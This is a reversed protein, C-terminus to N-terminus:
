FELPENERPFLQFIGHARCKQVRYDDLGFLLISSIRSDPRDKMVDFVGAELRKPSTAEVVHSDREDQFYIVATVRRAREFASLTAKSRTLVSESRANLVSKSRALVSKSRTVINSIM